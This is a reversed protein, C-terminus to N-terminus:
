QHLRGEKEYPGIGVDARQQVGRYVPLPPARDGGTTKPDISTAIPSRYPGVQTDARVRKKAPGMWPRVCLDAGVRLPFIEAAWLVM